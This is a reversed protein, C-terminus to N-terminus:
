GPDQHQSRKVREVVPYRPEAKPSVVIQDLRGMESLEYRSDVCQTTPWRLACRRHELDAITPEVRVLAHDM